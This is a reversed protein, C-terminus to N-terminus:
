STSATIAARGQTLASYMSLGPEIQLYPMMVEDLSVMETAILALQAELWDRVVRWGVDRAHGETKYRKAQGSKIASAPYKMEALQKAIKQWTVPLLFTQVGSATRMQFALGVPQGQELVTSVTDAGADALLDHCESVTRRAPVSTTYNLPRRAM